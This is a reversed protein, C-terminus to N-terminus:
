STSLDSSGCRNCRRTLGLKKEVVALQQLLARRFDLLFDRDIVEAAITARTDAKLVVVKQRPTSM